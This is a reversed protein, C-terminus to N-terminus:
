MLVVVPHLLGAPTLDGIGVLDQSENLLRVRAPWPVVTERRSEPSLDRPEIDCGSAARRVGEPTLTLRPLEPLVEALPILTQRARRGGDSPEEIASLAVSDSLTRGSAETRRLTALHAGVGLAVGLDHALSRVYFGSSCSIAVRALDGNADLVELSTVTVVVPVPLAPPAPPAPLGSRGPLVPIGASSRRHARALQYSRRGEIKKASFAPPQQAFTGRFAQLAHEVRERTPMAGAHVPTTPHGLADFTDTAFGFRITADYQKAGANLFQALRTARGVVLLLVGSALPDLTGTHGIRREQLIRRVRSVVDHSTPGVPKDVVLLGDLSMRHYHFFGPSAPRWTSLM